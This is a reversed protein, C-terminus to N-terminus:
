RRYEDQTFIRGESFSPARRARLYDTRRKRVHARRTRQDYKKQMAYDYRADTARKKGFQRILERTFADDAAVAAYYAADYKAKHSSPNRHHRAPNPKTVEELAIRRHKHSTFRKKMTLAETHTAPYATLYTKGGKSSIAVLHYM